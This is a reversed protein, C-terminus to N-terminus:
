GAEATGEQRAKLYLDLKITELIGIVQAYDIDPYERGYYQIRRWLEEHLRRAQEGQTM